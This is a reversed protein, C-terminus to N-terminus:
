GGCWGSVDKDKEALNEQLEKLVIKYSALERQLDQENNVAM